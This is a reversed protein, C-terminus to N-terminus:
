LSGKYREYEKWLQEKLTPDTEAMAAERLQRAVIDDDSATDRAGADFVPVDGKDVGPGAGPEYEPMTQGRAARRQADGGGEPTGGRAGSPESAGDPRSNIYPSSERRGDLREQQTLIMGDFESEIEALRKELAEAAQQQTPESSAQDLVEQLESSPAEAEAVVVCDVGHQDNSGGLRRVAECAEFVRRRLEAVFEAYETLETDSSSGSERLSRFDADNRRWEADVAELNVIAERLEPPAENAVVAGAAVPVLFALILLSITHIQRGM